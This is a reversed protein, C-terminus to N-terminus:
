KIRTQTPRTEPFAMRVFFKGNQLLYWGLLLDVVTSGLKSLISYLQPSVDIAAGVSLIYATTAIVQVLDPLATVLLVLGAIKMALNFIQLATDIQTDQEPYYRDALKNGGVLLFVGAALIVLPEVIAPILLWRADLSQSNLNEALSSWNVVASNIGKISTILGVILLVSRFVTQPSLNM